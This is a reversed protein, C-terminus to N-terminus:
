EVKGAVIAAVQACRPCPVEPRAELEAIRDQLKDREKEMANRETLAAVCSDIAADRETLAQITADKAAAVQPCDTCSSEPQENSDQEGTGELLGRVADAVHGSITDLDPHTNRLYAWLDNYDDRYATATVCNEPKSLVDNQAIQTDTITPSGLCVQLARTRRVWGAIEALTLVDCGSKGCLAITMNERGNAEGRLFASHLALIAVLEELTM